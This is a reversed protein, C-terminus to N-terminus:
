EDLVLAKTRWKGTGEKCVPCKGSLHYYGSDTIKEKIDELESGCIACMPQGKRGVFLSPIHIMRKHKEVLNEKKLTNIHKKVTQVTVGYKKALKEYDPLIELKYAQDVLDMFIKYKIEQMWEAAPREDINIDKEAQENTIEIKQKSESM